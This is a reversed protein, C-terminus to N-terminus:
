VQVPPLGSNASIIVIGNLWTNASDYFIISGTGGRTTLSYTQGPAIIGTDVIGDPIFYPSRPQGGPAGQQGVRADQSHGSLIRHGVSDDNKLILTSGPPVQVAQPSIFKASTATSAGDLITVQSTQTQTFAPTTPGIAGQMFPYNPDFFTIDRYTQHPDLGLYKIAADSLNL